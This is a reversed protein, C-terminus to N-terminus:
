YIASCNNFSLCESYVTMLVSGSGSNSDFIIDDASTPVSFGSTGGSTDSWNATNTDDWDTSGGVWFRNAM